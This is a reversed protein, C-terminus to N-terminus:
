IEQKFDEPKYLKFVKTFLLDVVIGAIIPIIAWVLIAPMVGIVNTQFVKDAADRVVSQIPSVFGIWGFGASTPTGQVNLFSIPLASLGAAVMFSFLMIPKKFVSPMMGKMAGLFIAVTTGVKNVRISNILLVVTTAVIGVGAAASGLGSLTIALAIGVTSVPTVIIVAFVMAIIITMPLPQLDTALQVMKGIWTTVEGVYPAIEKGILGVGGGVVIPSLIIALSGFGWLYKAILWIVLVGIAAVIMANIVDGAGSAMYVTSPSTTTVGTIPNKFGAPVSAWNISGCAVGVAIAMVGVDLSKMNFQMAIALGILMPIFSSFLTLIASLDVAWGMGSQVFPRIVYKLVASPLVGILIGQASGSLVKFFFDKFKLEYSGDFVASAM